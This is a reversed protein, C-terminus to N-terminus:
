IHVTMPRGLSDVDDGLRIACGNVVRHATWLMSLSDIADVRLKKPLKEIASDLAREKPFALRLLALRAAVGDPTSKKEMLPQGAMEAFSLEPHAEILGGSVDRKIVGGDIAPSDVIAGDKVTRDAFAKEWIEDVENIKPVLNWAQISLGKGSIERNLNNATDFDPACLAARVPTPFFTSSRPGLRKRALADVPRNGAASLGIPMDIAAVQCAGSAVDDGVDDLTPAFGITVDGLQQDAYAIVWGGPAGDIGALYRRHGM